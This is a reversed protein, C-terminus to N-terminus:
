GQLIFLTPRKHIDPIKGKWQAITKTVIYETELTIDCAICLQTSPRCSALIDNVLKVNRYPAEIFLQTQNERISKSEFEKIAKSTAGKKVPLYGNFAFNQGNLGSAMMALLISSPGVLPIVRINKKHALHVVQAGPDAVGPCGAESIIGVHHGEEIPSLYTAIVEPKTHKDLVYFTLEDIDISTDVLKLFRRATRINEVVYYRITPLLALTFHPLNYNLDSEGLTTPILYIKGKQM